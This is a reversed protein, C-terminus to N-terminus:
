KSVGSWIVLPGERNDVHVHGNYVGIGNFGLKIANRVIVGKKVADSCKIDSAKGKPHFSNPAGGIQENYQITRFGGGKSIILPFRCEGRLDDMMLLFDEEMNEGSNPMDPSDFEDKTFYRLSL